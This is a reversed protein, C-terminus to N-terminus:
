KVFEVNDLNGRAEQIVDIIKDLEEIMEIYKDIGDAVIDDNIIDKKSRIRAIINNIDDIRPELELHYRPLVEVITKDAYSTM